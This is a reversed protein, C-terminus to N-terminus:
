AYAVQQVIGNPPVRYEPAAEQMSPTSELPIV